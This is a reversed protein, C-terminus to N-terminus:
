NLQSIRISLGLLGIVTSLSVESLLVHLIINKADIIEILLSISKNAKMNLSYISGSGLEKGFDPFLFGIPYGALASLHRANDIVLYSSCQEVGWLCGYIM